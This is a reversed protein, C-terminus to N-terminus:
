PGGRQPDPPADPSAGEVRARDTVRVYVVPSLWYDAPMSESAQLQELMKTDLREIELWPNTHTEPKEYHMRGEIVGKQVWDYFRERRPMWVLLTNDNLEVRAWIYGKFPAAPSLFFNNDPWRMSLLMWRGARRLYLDTVTVQLGDKGATTFEASLWGKEADIVTVKAMLFFTARGLGYLLWVGEWNSSRLHVPEDGAPAHVIVDCASCFLVFIAALAFILSKLRGMIVKAMTQGILSYGGRGSEM